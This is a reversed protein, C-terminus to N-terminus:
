KFINLTVVIDATPLNEAYIKVSGTSSITEPLISASKVIEITSNSPVIDVVSISKIAANAYDYEYLDGVLTWGLVSLTISTIQLPMSQAAETAITAQETTEIVDLGTQIRDAGTAVRDAATAVRDAATAEADLGTQVRDAATAAADLGTAIRDAATADADLGTAIRDAATAIAAAEAEEKYGFADLAYQKALEEASVTVTVVYNQPNVAVLVDIVETSATVTVESM